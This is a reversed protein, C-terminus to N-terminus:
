QVDDLSVIMGSNVSVVRQFTIHDIAENVFRSSGDAMAVNIGGSHNSGFSHINVQNALGNVRSLGAVTKAAYVFGLQTGTDEGPAWNNKEYGFSWPARNVIGGGPIEDNSIEGIAIINSSGDKFDSTSKGRKLAFFARVGVAEPNSSYPSFVGDLGVPTGETTATTFRFGVESVEPAAGASGYYHSAIGNHGFNAQSSATTASPCNLIPLEFVGMDTILPLMTAPNQLMAQRRQQALGGQDLENLMIVFLSEGDRNAAPPFRTNATSYNQCALILQRMNNLCATRRAAERVRQVAPLLMGVLIGIIAIVVLLEVLTFGRKSSQKTKMTLM